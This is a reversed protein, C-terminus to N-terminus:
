LMKLFLTVLYKEKAVLPRSIHKWEPPYLNFM